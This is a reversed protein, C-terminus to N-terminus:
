DLKQFDKLYQSKLSTSNQSYRLFDEFYKLYKNM